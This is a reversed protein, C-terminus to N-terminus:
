NKLPLKKVIILYHKRNNNRTDMESWKTSNNGWQLINYWNVGFTVKEVVDELQSWLTTAMFWDGSIVAKECQRATQDVDALGVGDILSQLFFSYIPVNHFHHESNNSTDSDASTLHKYLEM